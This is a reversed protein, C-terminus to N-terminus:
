LTLASDLNGLFCTVMSPMRLLGDTHMKYFLTSLNCVSCAASDLVSAALPSIVRAQTLFKPYSSGNRLHSVRWMAELLRIEYEKLHGYKELLPRVIELTPDEKIVPEPEDLLATGDQYNDYCNWDVYYEDGSPLKPARNSGKTKRQQKTM